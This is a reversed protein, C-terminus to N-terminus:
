DAPRRAFKTERLWTSIWGLQRAHDEALGTDTRGAAVSSLFLRIAQLADLVGQEALIENPQENDIPSPEADKGEYRAAADLVVEAITHYDETDVFGFEKAYNSNESWLRLENAAASIVPVWGTIINHLGIILQDRDIDERSLVTDLFRRAEKHRTPGLNQSPM